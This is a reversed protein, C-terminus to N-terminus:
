AEQEKAWYKPTPLFTVLIKYYKNQIKIKKKTSNHHQTNHFIGFTRHLKPKQLIEERRWQRYNECM